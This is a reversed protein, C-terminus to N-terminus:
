THKELVIRRRIPRTIVSRTVFPFFRKTSIAYSLLNGFSLGIKTRHWQHLKSYILAYPTALHFLREIGIDFPSRLIFIKELMCPTWFIWIGTIRTFQDFHPSFQYERSPSIKKRNENRGASEDVFVSIFINEVFDQFVSFNLIWKIWHLLAASRIIFIREFNWTYVPHGIVSFGISGVIFTRIVRRFNM